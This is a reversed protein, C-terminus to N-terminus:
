GDLRDVQPAKFLEPLHANTVKRREFNIARKKKGKKKGGEWGDDDDEEEEGNRGGGPGGPMTARRPAPETGIKRLAADLDADHAPLEVAHFMSSMDEDVVVETGPDTPAAGRAHTESRDRLAPPCLDRLGSSPHNLTTTKMPPPPTPPPM